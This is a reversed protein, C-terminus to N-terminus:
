ISRSHNWKFIVISRSCGPCLCTTVALTRITFVRVRIIFAERVMM